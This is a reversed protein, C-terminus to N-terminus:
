GVGAAQPDSRALMDRVRRRHMRGDSEIERLLAAIDPFAAGIRPLESEMEGACRLEEELDTRLYCWSNQERPMYVPVVEPLKEGWAVMKAAISEAHKDEVAALQLLEDRFQTYRMRQAHQRYRMAQQKERVYRRRLLELVARRIDGAHGFLRSWWRWHRAAPTM